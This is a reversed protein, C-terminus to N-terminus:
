IPEVEGPIQVIEAESGALTDEDTWGEVIGCAAM